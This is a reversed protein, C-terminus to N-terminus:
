HSFNSGIRGAFGGTNFVSSVLYKEARVPRESQWSRTHSHGGGATILTKPKEWRVQLYNLDPPYASCSGDDLSVLQRRTGLIQM